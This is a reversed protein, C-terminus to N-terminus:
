EEWDPLRYCDDVVIDHMSTQEKFRVWLGETLKDDMRQCLETSEVAAECLSCRRRRPRRAQLFGRDRRQLVGTM